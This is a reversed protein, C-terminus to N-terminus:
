RARPQPRAPTAARVEDVTCRHSPNFALMWNLLDIAEASAGPYRNGLPEADIPALSSLFVRVAADDIWSMDAKDTGIVRVITMLQDYPAARKVEDGGAAGSPSLPFCSSGPFLASREHPKSRSEPLM